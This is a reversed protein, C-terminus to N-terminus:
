PRAHRRGREHGRIVQRQAENEPCRPGRTAALTALAEDATAGREVLLCGAVTGTRGLGGICHVVLTRGSDVAASIRRVLDALLAPSDPVSGDVIPLRWVELGRASAEGYLDGLEYADLEFDEVLSVLVEVGLDRVLRDLDASLDRQWPRPDDTSWGKRGPALTLGVRGPGLGPLWDVRLPDTASTRFPGSM